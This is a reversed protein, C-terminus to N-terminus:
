SWTNRSVGDLTSTEASSFRRRWSRPRMRDQGHAEEALEEPEVEDDDDAPDDQGPEREGRARRHGGHVLEHVADGLGNETGHAADQRRDAHAPHTGVQRGDDHDDDDLEEYGAQASM